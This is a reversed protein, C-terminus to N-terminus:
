LSIMMVRTVTGTADPFAQWWGEDAKLIEDPGQVRRQTGLEAYASDNTMLARLGDKDKRNFAEISARAAQINEQESM